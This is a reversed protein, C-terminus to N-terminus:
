QTALDQLLHRGQKGRAHDGVDPGANPRNALTALLAIMCGVTLVYVAVREGGQFARLWAHCRFDFLFRGEVRLAPQTRISSADSNQAVVALARNTSGIVGIGGTRGWQIRECASSRILWAVLWFFGRCAIRRGAEIGVSSQAAVVAANAHDTFITSTPFATFGCGGSIM